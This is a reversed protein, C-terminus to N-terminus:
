AAEIGVFTVSHGSVFGCYPAVHDYQLSLWVDWQHHLPWLVCGLLLVM